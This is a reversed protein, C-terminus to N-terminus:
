LYDYSVLLQVSKIPHKEQLVSIHSLITLLIATLLSLPPYKSTINPPYNLEMKSYSSLLINKGKLVRLERVTNAAEGSGLM